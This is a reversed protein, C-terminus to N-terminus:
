VDVAGDVMRDCGGGAFVGRSHDENCWLECGGRLDSGEVLMMVAVAQFMRITVVMITTM